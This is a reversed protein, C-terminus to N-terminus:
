CLGEGPLLRLQSHPIRAAQCRGMAAPVLTGAEGQWLHVEPQIERLSFGWPRGLSAAARGPAQRPHAPLQPGVLDGAARSLLNM